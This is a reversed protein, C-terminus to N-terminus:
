MKMKTILELNNILQKSYLDSKKELQEVLMPNSPHANQSYEIILDKLKLLKPLVKTGRENQKEDDDDFQISQKKSSFKQDQFDNENEVMLILFLLCGMYYGLETGIENGKNLGLLKGEKEGLISGDKQGEQEGQSLFTQEMDLINSFLEEQKKEM